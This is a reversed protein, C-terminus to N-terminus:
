KAWEMVFEVKVKYPETVAKNDSYVKSNFALRLCNSEITATIGLEGNLYENSYFSEPWKIDLKGSSADISKVTGIDTAGNSYEIIVAGTRSITVRNIKAYRNNEKLRDRMNVNKLKDQNDIDEAIAVLDNAQANQFNKSYSDSGLDGGSVAINTQIINWSRCVQDVLTAKALVGSTIASMVLQQAALPGVSLTLTNSSLNFTGGIALTVVDNGDKTYSTVYAYNNGDNEAKLLGRTSLVDFLSGGKSQLLAIGDETLKLTIEEIDGLQESGSIQYYANALEQFAAETLAKGVYNNEDDDSGCSVFAFPLALLSVLLLFKKM